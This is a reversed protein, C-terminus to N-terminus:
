YQFCNHQKNKVTEQAAVHIQSLVDINTRYVQPHSNNIELCLNM